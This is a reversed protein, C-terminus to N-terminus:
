GTSKGFELPGDVADALRLAVDVIAANAPGAYLITSRDYAVGASKLAQMVAPRMVANQGSDLLTIQDKVMVTAVGRRGYLYCYGYAVPGMDPSLPWLKLGQSADNLTDIAVDLVEM